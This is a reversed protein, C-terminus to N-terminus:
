LKGLGQSTAEDTVSVLVVESAAGGTYHRLLTHSSRTYTAARSQEARARELVRGQCVITVSSPRNALCSSFGFVVSLSLCLLDPKGEEM